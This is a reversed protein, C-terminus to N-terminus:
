RYERIKPSISKKKSAKQSKYSRDTDNHEVYTYLSDFKNGLKKPRIRKCAFFLLNGGNSHTRPPLSNTQAGKLKKVERTM